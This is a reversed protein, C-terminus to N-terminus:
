MERKCAPSAASATVASPRAPQEESAVLWPRVATPAGESGVGSAVDMCAAPPIQAVIGM